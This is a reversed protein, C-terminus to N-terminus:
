KIEHDGKICKDNVLIALHKKIQTLIKLSQSKSGEVSSVQFSCYSTLPRFQHCNVTTTHKQHTTAGPQPTGWELSHRHAM